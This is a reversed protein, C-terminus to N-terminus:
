DKLVDSFESELEVTKENQEKILSNVKETEAQKRAWAVDIIGVDAKRVLDRFERGVTDLTRAAVPGLLRDTVSALMRHEEAYGELHAAERALADRVEDVRQEVNQDLVQNLAGLERRLAAMTDRHQDIRLLAPQLGPPVQTRHAKLEVLEGQLAADFTARLRRSADLGGDGTAAAMSRRVDAQLTALADELALVEERARTMRSQMLELQEDTLEARHRGLWIEVAVIQARLSRVRYGERFAKLELTRYRDQINTKVGEIAETTQPLSEVQGEVVKLRQHKADISARSEPRIYPWVIRRELTLLRQGFTAMRNEISLAKSRAGSLGPFMSYRGEGALTEQLTAVLDRAEQMFAESDDLDKRVAVAQEMGAEELAWSVAVPPLITENRGVTELDKAVLQDFFARADGGRKLLEDLKGQAGGYRDIIAQFTEYATESAGLRIQLNGQLLRAEPYLRSTPSTAMLLELARLAKEFIKRQAEISPARNGDHVHAWAVEYLMEPFYPSAHGIGQYAAASNPIDGIEQYLRGLSLLALDHLEAADKTARELTTKFTRIAEEFRGLKVLAVGAYYSAPGSISTGPPIRQFVELARQTKALDDGAGRFIMKGYIYDVDPRSLTGADRLRAIYRDVDRYDNVAGAIELLGLVVDKLRDGRVRPLIEEFYRRAGTYNKSRRLSEALYYVCEDYRPHSRNQEDEVVDLFVISARLYDKLLFQIEGERLRRDVRTVERPIPAGYASKVTDFDSRMRLIDADLEGIVRNVDEVSVAELSQGKSLRPSLALGLAVCGLLPARAVAVASRGRDGFVPCAPRAIVGVPDSPFLCARKRMM